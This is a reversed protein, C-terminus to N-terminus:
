AIRSHGLIAAFYLGRSSKDFISVDWLSVYSVLQANFM